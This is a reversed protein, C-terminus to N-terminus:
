NKEFVVYYQWARGFPVYRDLPLLLRLLPFTWYRIRENFSFFLEMLHSGMCRCYTQEKIPLLRDARFVSKLKEVTIDFRVHGMFDRHLLEDTVAFRGMLAKRAPLPLRKLLFARMKIPPDWYGDVTSIMCTKGRKLVRSIEPVIAEFNHVHELVDSCFIFDFVGDKFPLRQGKAIVLRIDVFRRRIGYDATDIAFVV